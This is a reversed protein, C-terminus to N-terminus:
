QCPRGKDFVDQLMKYRDQVRKLTVVSSFIRNQNALKAATEFRHKTRGFPATHAKAALFERVNAIDEEIFFRSPRGGFVRVSGGSPTNSIPLPSKTCEPVPSTPIAEAMDQHAPLIIISTPPTTPPSLSPSTGPKPM